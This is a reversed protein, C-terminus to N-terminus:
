SRFFWPECLLHTSQTTGWPPRGRYVPCLQGCCESTHLTTSWARHAPVRHPVRPSDTCLIECVTSKSISFGWHTKTPYIFGLCFIMIFRTCSHIYEERWSRQILLNTAMDRLLADRTTSKELNPISFMKEDAGEPMGLIEGLSGFPCKPWFYTNLYIKTQLLYKSRLRYYIKSLKKRCM